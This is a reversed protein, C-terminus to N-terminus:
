FPVREQKKDAVEAPASDTSTTSEENSDQQGGGNDSRGGLMKMMGVRIETTYRDNDEKDKWKRTQIQGEVYIMSGQKLYEGVIEAQRGWAVLRHWETKEKREGSEKDKWTEGTALSFNAVTTGNVEKVEPDQGLRGVLIAKNVSSM